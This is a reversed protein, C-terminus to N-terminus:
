DGHEKLKDLIPKYKKMNKKLRKRFARDKKKEEIKRKLDKEIKRRSEEYPDSM